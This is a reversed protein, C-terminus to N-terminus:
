NWPRRGSQRGLSMKQVVSKLIDPYLCININFINFNAGQNDCKYVYWLGLLFLPPVFICSQHTCWVSSKQLVTWYLCMALQMDVTNVSVDFYFMFCISVVGHGLFFSALLKEVIVWLKQMLLFLFSYEM